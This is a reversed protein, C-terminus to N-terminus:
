GGNYEGTIRWYMGADGVDEPQSIGTYERGRFKIRVSLNEYDRGLYVMPIVFEIMDVEVARGLYAKRNNSIRRVIAWESRDDLLALEKGGDPTPSQAEIFISVEENFDGAKYRPLQM